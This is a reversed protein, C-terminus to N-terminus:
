PVKSRRIETIVSAYTSVLYPVCFTLLLKPWHIAAPDPPILASWQNILNLILGVIAAVKLSSWIVARQCALQLIYTLRDMFM